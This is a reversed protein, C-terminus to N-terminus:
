DLGIAAGLRRLIPGHRAALQDIRVRDQAHRAVRRRELDGARMPPQRLPVVGVEVLAGGVGGLPHAVDVLRPPHQRVRDTPGVAEMRRGPHGRVAM